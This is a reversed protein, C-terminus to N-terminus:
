QFLLNRGESFDPESFDIGTPKHGQLVQKITMGNKFIAEHNGGEAKINNIAISRNTECRQHDEGEHAKQNENNRVM